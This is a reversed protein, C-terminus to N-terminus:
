LLLLLSFYYFSTYPIKHHCCLFPQWTFCPPCLSSEIFFVPFSALHPQNQHDLPLIWVRVCVQIRGRGVKGAGMGVGSLSLLFLLGKPRSIQRYTLSFSIRSLRELWGGWWEWLYWGNMKMEYGQPLLSIYWKLEMGSIRIYTDLPPWLSCWGFGIWLKANSDDKRRNVPFVIWAAM